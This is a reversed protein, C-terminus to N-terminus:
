HILAKKLLHNTLMWLIVRLLRDLITLVRILWSSLMLVFLQWRLLIRVFNLLSYLYYVILAFFHLLLKFIYYLIVRVRLIVIFLLQLWRAFFSCRWLDHLDRWLPFTRDIVCIYLLLMWDIILLLRVLILVHWILIFRIFQWLLVYYRLLCNTIYSFMIFNIMKRIYRSIITLLLLIQHLLNLHNM